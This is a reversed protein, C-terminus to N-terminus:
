LTLGSKTQILLKKVEHDEVQPFERYFEGVASFGLPTKVSIIKDFYKAIQQQTSKAIVPTALIIKKAGLKKLILSAVIVTAGTAVGDDAVIITKNRVDPIKLGLKEERSKIIHITTALAKEREQNSIKLDTILNEDWFVIGDGGAPPGTAGIALEPNHSAGIKKVLLVKLPLRLVESISKGVVVGGRPIAVVISEKPFKERSLRVSLRVGAEERNLFM